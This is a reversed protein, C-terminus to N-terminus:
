AEVWLTRSKQNKIPSGQPALGDSVMIPRIQFDLTNAVGSSPPWRTGRTLACDSNTKIESDRKDFVAASRKLTNRPNSPHKVTSGTPHLPPSTKNHFRSTITLTPDYERNWISALIHMFLTTKKSIQQTRHSGPRPTSSIRM